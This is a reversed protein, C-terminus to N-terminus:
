VTLRLPAVNRSFDGNPTFSLKMSMVSPSVIFAQSTFVTFSSYSMM